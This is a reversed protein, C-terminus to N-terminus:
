QRYLVQRLKEGFLDIANETMVEAVETVDIEKLRAVEWCTARVHAPWCVAGKVAALAPADSELLLKNLPLAQVMEALMSVKAGKGAGNEEDSPRSLPPNLMSWAKSDSPADRLLTPPISFWAGDVRASREALKVPGDWAHMLSRNLMNTCPLDVLGYSEKLQRFTDLGENDLFSLPDKLVQLAHKGANRSHVNLPLGCTAAVCAQLALVRRQHSKFTDETIPAVSNLNPSPNIISNKLIWPSFDLGVEGIGVITDRNRVICDIICDQDRQQTNRQTETTVPGNSTPSVAFLDGWVASIGMEINSHKQVPHLGVCTLLRRSAAGGKSLIDLLQIAELHNEPTVIVAGLSLHQRDADSKLINSGATANHFEDNLHTEIQELTFNPEYFHSHADVLM